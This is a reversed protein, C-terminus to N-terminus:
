LQVSTSFHSVQEELYNVNFLSAFYHKTMAAITFPNLFARLVYPLKLMKLLSRKKKKSVKTSTAAIAAKTEEARKKRAKEMVAEAAKSLKEDIASDEEEEDDYEELDYEEDYEDDSSAGARLKEMITFTDDLPPSAQKSYEGILSLKAANHTSAAANASLSVVILLCLLATATIINRSGDFYIM